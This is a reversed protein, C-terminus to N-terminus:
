AVDAESEADASAGRKATTKTPESARRALTAVVGVTSLFAINAYFMWLLLAVVGTLAGYVADMHVVSKVYLTFVRQGLMWLLGFIFATLALRRNGVRGVSWRVLLFFILAVPFAQSVGVVLAVGDLYGLSVARVSTSAVYAGVEVLPGLLNVLLAVVVAFSTLVAMYGAARISSRRRKAFLDRIADDIRGFVTLGLAVAMLFGMVGNSVRHNVMTAAFEAPNWTIGPLAQRMWKTLQALTASRLELDLGTIDGAKDVAGLLYGIVSFAAFLSPLAALLSYMALAAARDFVGIRGVTEVVELLLPKSAKWKYFRVQWRRWPPKRHPRRPHPAATM